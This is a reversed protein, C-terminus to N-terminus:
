SKGFEVWSRFKGLWVHLIIKTGRRNTIKSASFETFKYWRMQDAYLHRLNHFGRVRYLHSLTYKYTNKRCLKSHNQWASRVIFNTM